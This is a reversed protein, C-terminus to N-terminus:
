NRYVIREKRLDYPSMEVTVRDGLGINIDFKRLKGGLYAIIISENPLKVRWMANPLTEVVEGEFKLAEEKAM